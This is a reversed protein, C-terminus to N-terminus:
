HWCPSSLVLFVAVYQFALHVCLLLESISLTLMVDPLTCPIWVSGMHFLYNYNQACVVFLHVINICAIYIESM